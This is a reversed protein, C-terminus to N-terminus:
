FPAFLTRVSVLRTCLLLCCKGFVKNTQRRYVYARARSIITLFSRKSSNLSTLGSRRAQPGHLCTQVGHKTTTSKGCPRCIMTGTTSRACRSSARVRASCTSSPKMRRARFTCSRCRPWAYTTTSCRFIACTKSTSADARLPWAANTQRPTGSHSMTYIVGCSLTTGASFFTSKRWATRKKRFGGARCTALAHLVTQRQTPAM